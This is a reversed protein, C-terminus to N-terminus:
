FGDAPIFVKGKVIDLREEREMQRIARIVTEVRFGIMNALQQRTLMLRRCEECIFQHNMNFYTILQSVIIVPDNNALLETLFFKFRLKQVIASTFAFHLDPDNRLINQFGSICIRLVTTPADAIATAAYLQNDFLPLEGFTQGPEVVQHLVERGDDLVNCWRIRGSVLQYYFSAHTGVQFVTEGSAFNRYAAGNELLIEIPIM